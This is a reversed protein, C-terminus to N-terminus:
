QALSDSESFKKELHTIVGIDLSDKLEPFKNKFVQIVYKDAIYRFEPNQRRTNPLLTFKDDDKQYIPASSYKSELAAIIEPDTLEAIKPYIERFIGIIAQDSLLRYEPFFRRTYVMQDLTEPKIKLGRYIGAWAPILITFFIITAYEFDRPYESYGNYGLLSAALALSIGLFYGWKSRYKEVYVRSFEHVAVLMAFKSLNDFVPLFFAGFNM